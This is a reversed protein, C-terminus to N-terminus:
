NEGQQLNIFSRTRYYLSASNNLKVDLGANNKKTDQMLWLLDFQKSGSRPDENGKMIVTARSYVTGM